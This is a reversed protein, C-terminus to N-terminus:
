WLREIARSKLKATEYLGLNARPAPYANLVGGASVETAWVVAQVEAIGAGVPALGNKFGIRPVINRTPM